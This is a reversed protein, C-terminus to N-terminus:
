KFHMSKLTRFHGILCASLNPQTKISTCKLFMLFQSLPSVFSFISHYFHEFFPFYNSHFHEFSLFNNSLFTVFLSFPRCALEFFITQFISFLKSLFNLTKSLFLEVSFTRFLFFTSLFTRFLHVSINSM